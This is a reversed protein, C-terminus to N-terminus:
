FKWITTNKETQKRLILRIGFVALLFTWVALLSCLLIESEKPLKGFTERTSQGDSTKDSPKISDLRYLSSVEAFTKEFFADDATQNRRVAKCTNEILQGAANRLSASGNFVPTVFTDSVNDLLIKAADMKVAYHMDNDSGALYLYNQYEVSKQAKFTVPVYGESSAYSLQIDNTLLYQAFLWSALVEQPNAKNFICISPGQSIFKKNQPDVQPVEKVVTEFTIKKEDPIDSLPAESGMWTAGATSDIAFICQGANLFNGPYSSIAFTSFSRNAAHISIEQLFDKTVDNFVLIEGDESSYPANMQALYQILMNDTSKYIFPIMIKQGNIIFNEDSDKVMAKESVEWIFDWTLTEPISYGLKEVLDKNIYCAETSRMFPIAYHQGSLLCEDLFQPVIEDKRVSDFCLKKGGFGFDENEMLEDLPVVINTGTNYTAIHDPYTICINPTTQTSINTIVDNYIRNYDTYLRMNIHIFPYENQFDSIAKEYAAVQVKNTDNKAWFTLEYKKSKDFDSPVAFAPLSKKGHCSTLAIVALFAFSFSSIKKLVSNYLDSM